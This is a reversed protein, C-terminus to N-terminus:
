ATLAGRIRLYDLLPLLPLGLISFYDGEIQNFLQAGLGELQYAGVTSLLPEGVRDVYADIFADSLPRMTLKPRALHRWVPTGNECIVIATELTHSKGSLKRLHDRAAELDVPKDFAERDLSLMQDGGIVLGETRNSVKVAKLEALQMAQDRVSMGQARMAAKASDEDVNPKISAAEVGAGALLARRSASGSALTIALSM